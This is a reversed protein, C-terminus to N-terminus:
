PCTRRSIHVPDGPVEESEKIRRYGEKLEGVTIVKKTFRGRAELGIMRDGVLAVRHDIGTVHDRVKDGQKPRM